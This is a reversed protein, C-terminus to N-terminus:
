TMCDGNKMVLVDTNTREFLPSTLVPASILVVVRINM